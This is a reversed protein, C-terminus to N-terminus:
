QNRGLLYIEAAKNAIDILDFASILDPAMAVAGHREWVVIDHNAFARATAIALDSSGHAGSVLGVGRPLFVPFEIHASCLADDLASEDALCRAIAILEAPHAHLVSIGPFARHLELHVALDSTPHFPEGEPWIVRYSEGERPIEIVGLGWSPDRAIDRMRAGTATILIREPGTGSLDVSLNGASAEAWGKEWLLGAAEAALSVARSIEEHVFFNYGM